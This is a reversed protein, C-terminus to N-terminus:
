INLLKLCYSGDCFGFVDCLRDGPPSIPGSLPLARRDEKFPRVLSPWRWGSSCQFRKEPVNPFGRLSPTSHVHQKNTKGSRISMMRFQISSFQVTCFCPCLCYAWSGVKGGEQINTLMVIQAVGEQWVMWWLDSISNARPGLSSLCSWLYTVNGAKAQATDCYMCWCPYWPWM